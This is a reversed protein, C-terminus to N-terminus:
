FICMDTLPPVIHISESPLPGPDDALSLCILLGELEFHSEVVRLHAIMNLRDFVVLEGLVSLRFDGVLFNPRPISLVYEGLCRGAKWCMHTVDDDAGM